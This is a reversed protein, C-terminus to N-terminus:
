RVGLLEFINNENEHRYCLAYGLRKAVNNVIYLGLGFGSNQKNEQTFPELYYKLSHKLPEGKSIIQISDLRVNIIAQHEKSYKIANDILNKLALALLNADTSIVREESGKIVIQSKDCLLMKQSKAIISSIKENKLQPQFQQTSLREVHALESILQNMREFAGILVMKNKGDEIMEVAIRGKTIPTKLEHMMNRMFLNKSALLKRIYEIADDFSKAIAGIEDDSKHTIKIEMDGSAFQAIQKHLSKLPALKKIIAIYLFAFLLAIVFSILFIISSAINDPKTDELLLDYGQKSLYIYEAKGLALMQMNGSSYSEKFIVKGKQLILEKHENLIVPHIYFTEYFKQIEDESSNIFSSSLLNNAILKYRNMKDSKMREKDWAIFLIITVVLLSLVFTFLINIYALVSLNKKM